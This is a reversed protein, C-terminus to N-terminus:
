VVQQPVSPSPPSGWPGRPDVENAQAAFAALLNTPHDQHVLLACGQRLTLAEPSRVSDRAPGVAAQTAEPAPPRYGLSRHPRRHNYEQRWRETLLRGEAM